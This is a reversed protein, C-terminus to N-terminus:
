VPRCGSCRGNSHAGSRRRNERLWPRWRGGTPLPHVDEVAVMPALAPNFWIEQSGAALRHFEMGFQKLRKVIDRYRFGALAGM